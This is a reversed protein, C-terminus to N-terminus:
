KYYSKIKQTKTRNYKVNEEGKEGNRKFYEKLTLTVDERIINLKINHTDIYDTNLKRYEKKELSKEMKEYAELYLENEFTLPLFMKLESRFISLILVIMEDYDIKGHNNEVWYMPNFGKAVWRSIYITAMQNIAGFKYEIFTDINKVIHNKM